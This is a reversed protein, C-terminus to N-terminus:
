PLKTIEKLVVKWKDMAQNLTITKAVLNNTMRMDQLMQPNHIFSEMAGQLSETQNNSTLFFGNENMRVLECAAGVEWTSIIPLGAAIAQNVVVGWGDHRSPLVFVDANAFLEPLENPAVFGKNIIQKEAKQSLGNKHQTLGDDSGALILQADHSTCLGNFAQLLIDIGKRHIMQGCFLFRLQDAPQHNKSAEIFPEIDCHYPINYVPCSYNTQYKAAAKEGIAVIASALKLGAHLKKKLLASVPNTADRLIEGWFIWKIKQKSLQKVLVPFCMDTLAINLIVLDSDTLDPLASCFHSRIRKKGIVFGPLVSEHDQLVIDPWPSDPTARELYHVKLSIDPQDKLANFMDQQYPSPTTSIITLNM